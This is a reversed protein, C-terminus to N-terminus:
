PLARFRKNLYGNLWIFGPLFIGWMGGIIMLTLPLPKLLTVGGLHVVSLYSLAGGLAGLSAALVWRNNLWSFLHVNAGFLGWLIFVWLPPIWSPLSYLSHYKLLGTQSYLIDSLPGIAIVLCLLLSDAKRCSSRYLYYGMFSLVLLLGYYSHEYVEQLCIVWGIYFIATSFVKNLFPGRM